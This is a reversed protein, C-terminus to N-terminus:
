VTVKARQQNKLNAVEDLNVSLLMSTGNDRMTVGYLVNARKMTYRNHTIVIFQTKAALEVLISAFKDSNSEDLAADVEDLVVFPSPNSTMIACILAISVLAREGGSLMAINKIKKGPPTAIIDIGVVHEGVARAPKTRAPAKDKAEPAGNGDAAPEDEEPESLLQILEAKGGGFLTKFYRDFDRNIQRFATEGRAKITIDLEAIVKELDEIAKRLDVTQTMLFEHRSNTEEYEKVVEPDIGGILNLQYKLKQMQAYLEETSGPAGPSFSEKAHQAREGLEQVLEQELAERKTELRAMEIREDNLRREHEHAANVKEQLGRQLAFFKEKKEREGRNYDQLRAQVQRVQEDKEALAARIAAIEKVLAQDPEVHQAEPAPRELRERLSRAAGGVVEFEPVTGHAAELTAAAKLKSIAADQGTGISEVEHMIKSLPLTTTTQKRVQAAVEMRGRIEVERDRLRGKEEVLKQYEAQLEEFADTGREQTELTGLEGQAETLTSEKRKWEDELKDLTRRRADIQEQLESWLRGYYQHGVAHLDEELTGRTELRKVQRALSRLRPEIENLLMEAQALNEKTLDMKAVSQNRKLQFQRVGAAEDIYEKREQPSATLIADAMGQGIVSYSRASFQAQALLLQIDSLRVKSKNILYESDGDRYVRRTISVETYDIPLKGDENNLYITAEAFGSRARKESGSFIVDEAKKGRLLKTSQEGLVWRLADAVNSKGSGNPGVIATIGKTTASPPLFDLETRDAFSKFGITELKQLFM